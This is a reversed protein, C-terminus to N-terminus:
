ANIQCLTYFRKEVHIHCNRLNHLVAQLNRCITNFKIMNKTNLLNHISSVKTFDKHLFINYFVHGKKFISSINKKKANNIVIISSLASMFIGKIIFILISILDIRNRDILICNLCITIYYRQLYNKKM